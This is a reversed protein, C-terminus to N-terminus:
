ANLVSCFRPNKFENWVSCFRPIKSCEHMGFVTFSPSKLANTCPNKCEHVGFVAFGQFSQVGLSIDFM